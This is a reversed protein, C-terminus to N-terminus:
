LVGTTAEVDDVVAVNFLFFHEDGYIVSSYTNDNGLLRLWRYFCQHNKKKQGGFAYLM